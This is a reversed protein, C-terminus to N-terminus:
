KKLYMNMPHQHFNAMGMESTTIFGAKANIVDPIRNVLNGMTFIYSNLNPVNVEVDPMGYLKWSCIDAESDAYVYGIDSTVIEIGERTYTTVIEETGRLDGAAITKGLVESYTDKEAIYAKMEVKYDYPTLELRKCIADNTARMLFGDPQEKENMLEEFEKRTRGINYADALAPGYEDTNFTTTGVIRKLEIMGSAMLLPLQMWFVDLLGSGCITCHNKRALEHLRNTAASSTNWSYHAEDCTTLVNIGRSLIKNFFPECKDVFSFLAVIVIDPHIEDLVKDLDDTITVGLKRGLNTVEGIDKGLLKPNSDVAGVIRIGKREMLQVGLQGMRGCGLSVARIAESM